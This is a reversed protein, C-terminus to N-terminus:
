TVIEYILGEWPVRPEGGADFRGIDANDAVKRSEVVAHRACRYGPREHRRLRHAAQRLEVSHEAQPAGDSSGRSQVQRRPATEEPTRWV